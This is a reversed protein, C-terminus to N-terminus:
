KVPHIDLSKLLVMRCYATLALGLNKAEQELRKKKQSEIRIYIVEM